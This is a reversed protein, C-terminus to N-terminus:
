RRRTLDPQGAHFLRRFEGDLQQRQEDSLENCRARAKEAIVTGATKRPATSKKRKM